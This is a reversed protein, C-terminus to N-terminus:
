KCLCVISNITCHVIKLSVENYLKSCIRFENSKMKNEAQEILSKLHEDNKLYVKNNYKNFKEEYNERVSKFRDSKIVSVFELCSKSQDSLDIQQVVM